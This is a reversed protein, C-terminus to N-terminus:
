DLREFDGPRWTGDFAPAQPGYLRLYVFWGRGPNTQIWRDEQGSPAKPGFYLDLTEDPDASGSPPWSAM